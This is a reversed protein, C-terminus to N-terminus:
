IIIMLKDFDKQICLLEKEIKYTHKIKNKGFYIPEFMIKLLKLKARIKMKLMNFSSESNKFFFKENHTIITIITEYKKENFAFLAHEYMQKIKNEKDEIENKLVYNPFINTNISKRYSIPQFFENNKNDENDSNNYSISNNSSLLIVNQNINM